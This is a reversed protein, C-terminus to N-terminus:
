RNPRMLRKEVGTILKELEGVNRRLYSLEAEWLAVIHGDRKSNEEALQAWREDNRLWLLENEKRWDELQQRQREEATRELHQLAERDQELQIRLADLATMMKDGDRLQKDALAVQGRLTEAGERWKGMEKTWGAVRKKMRDDVARIEDASAAQEVRLQESTSELGSVQQSLREMQAQALRMSEVVDESRSKEAEGTKLLDATREESGAIRGELLLQREQQQRGEKTMEEVQMGLASATKTLRDINAQQTRLTDQLRLLEEIRQDMRMLASQREKREVQLRRDAEEGEKAMREEAKHLELMIEDKFQQLAKDFRSLSQLEASTRAVRRMWPWRPTSAWTAMVPRGVRTWSRPGGRRGTLTLTSSTAMPTTTTASAPGAPGMWPWRLAAGWM